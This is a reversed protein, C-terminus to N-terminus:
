SRPDGRRGAGLHSSPAPSPGSLWDSALPDRYRPKAQSVLEDRRTSRLTPACGERGEWTGSGLLVGGCLEAGSGWTRLLYEASDHDYDTDEPFHNIKVCVGRKLGPPSHPAPPSPPPCKVTPSSQTLFSLGGREEFGKEKQASQSVPFVPEQVHSRVQSLSEFERAETEWGPKLVLVFSFM